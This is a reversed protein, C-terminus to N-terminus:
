FAGVSDYVIVKSWLHQCDKVFKLHVSDVQYEDQEERSNFVALWSFAYSTDIVDRHTDAPVGIHFMQITAARSLDNLGQVLSAHDEKIGPNQLWFYVHHIFMKQLLM